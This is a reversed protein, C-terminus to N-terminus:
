AATRWSAAPVSARSLQRSTAMLGASGKIGADLTLHWEENKAKQSYIKDAGVLWKSQKTQMKADGYYTTANFM